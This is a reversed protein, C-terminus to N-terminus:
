ALASVIALAIAAVGAVSTVATAAALAGRRAVPAGAQLAERTSRYARRGYAWAAGALLLLVAGVAYGLAHPAHETGTELAIAGIAALSLASRSWALATREGALGRHFVTGSAPEPDRGSM